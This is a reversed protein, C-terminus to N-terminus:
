KSTIELYLERIRCAKHCFPWKDIQCSNGKNETLLVRTKNTIIIYGAVCSWDHSILWDRWDWQIKGCIKGVKRSVIVKKRCNFTFSFESSPKLSVKEKVNTVQSQWLLIGYITHNLRCWNIKEWNRCSLLGLDLYLWSTSPEQRATDEYSLSFFALDKKRM